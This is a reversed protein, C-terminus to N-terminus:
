FLIKKLLVDNTVFKKAAGGVDPIVFTINNDINKKDQILVDMFQAVPIEALIQRFNTPLGCGHLKAQIEEGDFSSINLANAVQLEALMGLAIAEGHLLDAVTKELGHGITHGFNLAMRTSERGEYWDDGIIDLKAQVAMRIISTIEIMSVDQLANLLNDKGFSAVKIIEAMGANYQRRELSKLFDPLIYVQRPPWFAGLQNKGYATNIAVKGGISSDVQALLTTPFFLWEIGRKYISASFGAVDGLCGGGIVLMSDYRHCQNEQLFNTIKEVTQLTKLSEAGKLILTPTKVGKLLSPYFHHIAEDVILFPRKFRQGIFDPFVDTVKDEM